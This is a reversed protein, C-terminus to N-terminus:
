FRHNAGQVLVKVNGNPMKLSQVIKAIVGVLFIDEKTPENILADKQASLFIKKENKLAYELALISKDRGVFFPVMMTPFVVLDRMPLLPLTEYVEKNEKM